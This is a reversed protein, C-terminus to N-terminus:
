SNTEQYYWGISCLASDYEEVNFLATAASMLAMNVRINYKAETHSLEIISQKADQYKELAIFSNILQLIAYGRRDSDNEHEIVYKYPRICDNWQGMAYNAEALTM